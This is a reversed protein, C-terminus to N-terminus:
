CVCKLFRSPFGSLSLGFLIIDALPSSPGNCITDSDFVMHHTLPSTTGRFLTSVLRHALLSALGRLSHIQYPDWMLQLFSRTGVLVNLGSPTSQSIGCRNPPCSIGKILTHFNRGLLRMKFVKLSLEFPFTWLPCCRSPAQEMITISSTKQNTFAFLLPVLKKNKLHRKIRMYANLSRVHKNWSTADMLSQKVHSADTIAKMTISQNSFTPELHM